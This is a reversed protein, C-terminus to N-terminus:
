KKIFMGMMLDKVIRLGNAAGQGYEHYTVQVPHEMYRLKHRKTLALIETAHAMGDHTLAIRSLARANLIRFGNHADTLAIRAFLRNVLRGLPFLIYRKVWPINSQKGLFRSGFLVDVESANMAALAPMIDAVDFQNDGDFHLVYSAQKARAYTHGTELAAGQGRNIEHVLVTAGAERALAATDDQSADDVVVVEDVHDFLSRVVSGIHSAENYAPVIAIFM